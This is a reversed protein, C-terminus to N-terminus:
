ARDSAETEREARRRRLGEGLDAIRRDLVAVGAEEPWKGGIFARLGDPQAIGWDCARKWQARVLRAKADQADGETPLVKFGERACWARLGEILQQAQAPNIWDPEDVGVQGKVWAALADRGPNALAGLDALSQWLAFVKRVYGRDSHRGRAPKPLGKAAGRRVLEDLVRGLQLGSMARLSRGGATVELFNRWAEDDGLGDVQRRRAQVARIVEAPATM